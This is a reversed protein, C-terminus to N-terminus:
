RFWTSILIDPVHRVYKLKLKCRISTEVWVDEMGVIEFVGENGMKITGFDNVIYSSFFGYRPTVHYSTGLDIMWTSDQCALNISNDDYVICVDSDCAVSTTDKHNKKENGEYKERSCERKLFRGNLKRRHWM